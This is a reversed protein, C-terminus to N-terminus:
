LTALLEAAADAEALLADYDPADPTLSESGGVDGDAADDTSDAEGTGTDTEQEDEASPAGEGSTGTEGADQSTGEDANTSDDAESTTDADPDTDTDGAPDMGKLEGLADALDLEGSHLKLLLAAVQEKAVLPERVHLPVSRVSLLSTGPVAGALVISVEELRGQTFRRYYDGDADQIDEFAEPVFGVSFEDMTGSQLQAYAQHALPVAPVQTGPIMMLDLQGRLVLMTGDTRFDTWRGIVERWDHGWAIRPMRERLSKDFLGPAFETNYDDRVNYRLVVAEFVGEGEDPLARVQVHPVMRSALNGRNGSVIPRLKTTM